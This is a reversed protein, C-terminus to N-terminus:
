EGDVPIGTSGAFIDLWRNKNNQFSNAAGTQYSQELTPRDIQGNRLSELWARIGSKMETDWLLSRPVEVPSGASDRARIFQSLLRLDTDNLKGDIWKQYADYLDNVDFEEPKRQGLFEAITPRSALDRQLDTFVARQEAMSPQNMPGMVQPAM